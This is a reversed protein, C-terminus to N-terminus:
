AVGPLSGHFFIRPRHGGGSGKGGTPSSLSKGQQRRKAESLIDIILTAFERANFRALKQRGQLCFPGPGFLTHPPGEPQCVPAPVFCHPQGRITSKVVALIGWGMARPWPLPHPIVTQPLRPSSERLPWFVGPPQEGLASFFLRKGTGM